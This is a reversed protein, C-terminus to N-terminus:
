VPEASASEPHLAAVPAFSPDLRLVACLQAGAAAADGLAAQCLAMNWLVAPTEGYLWHSASFLALARDYEALGYLLWGLLFPFDRPEGLHYYNDWGQEIVRVLERREASTTTDIQRYFAMACDGLILPDCGSLRVVALLQRPALQEPAGRLVARAFSFFDDPGAQEVAHVFCRQTEAIPDDGLLFASVAIGASRYGTVLATGGRRVVYDGIAHYNVPLSFSGHAALALDSRGDLDELRQEGRDASLLMLRGGCLAALQDICRLAGAPFLLTTESLRGAYAQLIENFSSEFYPPGELAHHSYHCTLASLAEADEVDFDPRDAHLAVRCESVTGDAVLFADQSIGDFVYNAIVVPPWALSDPELAIGARELWITTDAEADFLAFDLTGDTLFPAFAEHSRWFDLNAATFDTAVYRLPVDADPALVRFAKLFHFAFRGSGAGLEIITFPAATDFVAGAAQLDRLRALALEAYARALRVHNTVNYPVTGSRWAEVGQREFYRRQAAWLLSESLRKAPEVLYDDSTTEPATM